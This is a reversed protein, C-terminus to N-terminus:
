FICRLTLKHNVSAKLAKQIEEDNKLVVQVGDGGVWVLDFEDPIAMSMRRFKNLVRLRLDPVSLMFDADEEQIKLAIIMHANVVVKVTAVFRGSYQQQQALVGLNSKLTNSPLHKQQSHAQTQNLLTIISQPHMQKRSDSSPETPSLPHSSAPSVPSSTQLNITFNSMGSISDIVYSPTKQGALIRKNRDHIKPILPATSAKVPKSNLPVTSAKAPKPSLPATSITVAKPGIRPTPLVPTTEEAAKRQQPQQQQQVAVGQVPKSDTRIPVTPPPNTLVLSSSAYAQTKAVLRSASKLPVTASVTLNTTTTTTTTSSSNHNNRHHHHTNNVPHSSTRTHARYDNRPRTEPNLSSPRRPQQNSPDGLSNGPTGMVLSATRPPIPAPSSPESQPSGEGFSRFPKYQPVISIVLPASPTTHSLPLHPSSSSFPASLPLPKRVREFMEGLNQLSTAKQLAIYSPGHVKSSIANHTDAEESIDSYSSSAHDSADDESDDSSHPSSETTSSLAFNRRKVTASLDSLNSPVDWLFCGRKRGQLPTLTPSPAPSSDVSTPLSMSDPSWPSSSFSTDSRTRLDVAFSKSSAPPTPCVSHLAM